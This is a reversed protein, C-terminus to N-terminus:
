ERRQTIHVGMVAFRVPIPMMVWSLDHFLLPLKSPPFVFYRVMLLNQVEHEDHEPRCIWPRVVCSRRIELIYFM